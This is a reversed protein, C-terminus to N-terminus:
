SVTGGTQTGAPELSDTHRRRPPLYFINPQTGFEEHLPKGGRERILRAVESNPDNLDGFHRTQVPCAEVCAPLQGQDVREQCFTCKEVIGKPRVPVASNGVHDDPFSPVQVPEHWNFVRVGYPCSAMCTRCGICKSYDQAVIGDPRKYTAGTPCVKVCPANECHMCQIPMYTMVPKGDPGMGPEGYFAGTTEVSTIRNWFSGLPVNNEAKCAVSCTWCGICRDLDIVMVLRKNQSAM